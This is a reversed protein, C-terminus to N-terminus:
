TLHVRFNQVKLSPVRFKKIEKESMKIKLYSFADTTKRGNKVPKLTELAALTSRVIDPLANSAFDSPKQMGFPATLAMSVGGMVGLHWRLQPDVTPSSSAMGDM